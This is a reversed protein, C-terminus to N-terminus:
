NPMAPQEAKRVSQQVRKLFAERAAELISIEDRDKINIKNKQAWYRLNSIDPSNRFDGGFSCCWRVFDRAQSTTPPPPADFLGPTDQDLERM